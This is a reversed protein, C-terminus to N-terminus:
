SSTPVQADDAASFPTIPVDMLLYWPAYGARTCRIRLRVPQNEYEQQWRQRAWPDTQWTPSQTNRMDRKMTDGPELPGNKAATGGPEAVGDIGM